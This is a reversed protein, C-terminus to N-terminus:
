SAYAVQAAAQVEALKVRHLSEREQVLKHMASRLNSLYFTADAVTQIHAPIGPQEQDFCEVLKALVTRAQPSLPAQANSLDTNLSELRAAYACGFWVSFFLMVAMVLTGVLLGGFFGLLSLVPLGVLCRKHWKLGSVSEEGAGAILAPLVLSANLDPYQTDTTVFSSSESGTRVQNFRPSCVFRHHGYYNSMFQSVQPSNISAERARLTALHSSLSM